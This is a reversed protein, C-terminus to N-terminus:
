NRFIHTNPSINPVDDFCPRKTIYNFISHFNSIWDLDTIFKIIIQWLAVLVTCCLELEPWDISVRAGWHEWYSWGWWLLNYQLAKWVSFGFTRETNISHIHFDQVMTSILESEWKRVQNLLWQDITNERFAELSCVM